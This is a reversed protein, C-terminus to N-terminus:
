PTELEDSDVSLNHLLKVEWIVVFRLLWLNSKFSPVSINNVDQEYVYTKKSIGDKNPDPLLSSFLSMKKWNGVLFFGFIYAQSVGVLYHIVLFYEM